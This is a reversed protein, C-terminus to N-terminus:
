TFANSEEQEAQIKFIIEFESTMVHMAKSLQPEYKTVPDFSQVHMTQDNIVVPTFMERVLADVVEDSPWIFVVFLQVGLGIM